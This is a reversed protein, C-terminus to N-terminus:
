LDVNEFNKVSKKYTIWISITFVIIGVILIPLQYIMDNMAVSDIWQVFPIHGLSEIVLMGLVVPILALVFSTGVKYATKYFRTFFIYNFMAYVIFGFGYFAINANLGVANGESFLHYRLIAFPVSLLLQGLEAILILMFKGKVVDSKKVPLLATYVADNNERAFMFTIAPGLTGYLFITSYPYAPVLVLCGLAAFIFLNPHAALRIEKYLLNKM